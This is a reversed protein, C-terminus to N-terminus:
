LEIAEYRSKIEVMSYRRKSSCPKYPKYWAKKNSSWKFGNEKLTGLDGGSGKVFTLSVKEGSVPDSVLAKASTNGGAYNTIKSDSGLRNSRGLLEGVQAALDSIKM